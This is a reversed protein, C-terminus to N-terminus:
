ITNIVLYANPSIINAMSVIASTGAFASSATSTAKVSSSEKYCTSTQESTGGVCSYGDKVSFCDTTCELDAGPDCIEEGQIIGDGCVPVCDFSDCYGSKVCTTKTTSDGGECVYGPLVGDCDANCGWEGAYGDDCTESGVM